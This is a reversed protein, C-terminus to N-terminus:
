GFDADMGEEQPPPEARTSGTSPPTPGQPPPQPAPSNPSTGKPVFTLDGRSAWSVIRLTPQFNTSSKAGSGTKIPTVKELEVVPLKGPNAPKKQLYDLYLAEIGSLFAKSTGALERVLPSGGACDKSLKLMLRIGNKHKASPKDPLEKGIPVLKFDPPSGPLFDFWGTEVNELDLIAKFNATIDVPKSEFGNGTDVRDLRYFRGARADYKVIPM